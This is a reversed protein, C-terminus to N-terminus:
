LLRNPFKDNLIAALRLKKKELHRKHFQVYLRRIKLKLKKM